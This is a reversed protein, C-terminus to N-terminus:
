LSWRRDYHTGGNRSDRFPYPRPPPSRSQHTESTKNQARRDSSLTSPDGSRPHTERTEQWRAQRFALWGDAAVIGNQFLALRGEADMKFDLPDVTINNIAIWYKPVTSWHNQQLLKAIRDMYEYINRLTKKAPRRNCISLDSTVVVLTRAKDSVCSWPFYEMAGGDCYLNGRADAWPTFLLPVCSSARIADLIRVDPTNKISFVTLVGETLNTATIHLSFGPRKLALDAFTWRSSGPEWTDLFRGLFDSMGDGSTIGWCNLFDAVREEEIDAVVRMDFYSVMERIWTPSVGLAGLFACFSGASCGYWNRVDDAVGSEMLRALVGLLAIVHSGGISFSIGTPKWLEM